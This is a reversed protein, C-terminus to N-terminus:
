AAEQKRKLARRERESLGGWIGFQENNGMAYALCEAVVTCAGCINKAPKGPIGKEPFFVDTDIQACLADLVWGGPAAIRPGGLATPEGKEPRPHKTPASEAVPESLCAVCEALHSDRLGEAEAIDDKRRGLEDLWGAQNVSGDDARAILGALRRVENRLHKVTTNLSHAQRCNM